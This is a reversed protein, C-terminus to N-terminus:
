VGLRKLKKQMRRIASRKNKCVNCHSSGNPNRVKLHGYICHTTRAKSPGTKKGRLVNSLYSDTKKHCELCLVRGNSVLTKLDPREVKPIIHDVHLNKQSACLVCKYGDRLLVSERFEKYQKTSCGNNSPRTIGGRWRGNNEGSKNKINCPWCRKVVHSPFSKIACGCDVCNAIM